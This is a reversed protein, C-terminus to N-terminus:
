EKEVEGISKWMRDLVQEDCEDDGRLREFESREMLRRGNFLFGPEEGQVRCIAVYLRYVSNKKLRARSKEWELGESPLEDSLKDEVLKWLRAKPTDLKDGGSSYHDELTEAISAM